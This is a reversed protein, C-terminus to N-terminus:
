CQILSCRSTCIIKNKLVLMNFICSTPHGL